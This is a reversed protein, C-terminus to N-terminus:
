DKWAKMKSISTLDQVIVIERVLLCIVLLKLSKLYFKFTKFIWIQSIVLWCQTKLNIMIEQVLKGKDWLNMLRM